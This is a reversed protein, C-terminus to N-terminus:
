FPSVYNLWLRAENGQLRSAPRNLLHGSPGEGTLCLAADLPALSSLAPHETGDPQLVVSAGGVTMSVRVLGTRGVPAAILDSRERLAAEVAAATMKGQSQSRGKPAGMLRDQLEAVDETTDGEPWLITSALGRKRRM